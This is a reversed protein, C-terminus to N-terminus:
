DPQLLSQRPIIMTQELAYRGSLVSRPVVDTFVMWTSNPPFVSQHKKTGEQYAANGKLFDHFGVHIRRLPVTWWLHACRMFPARQLGHWASGGQAIAPLGAQMAWKRAVTGFPDGTM